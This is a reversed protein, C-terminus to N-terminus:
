RRAAIAREMRTITDARLDLATAHYAEDDIAALRQAAAEAVTGADETIEDLFGARQAADPDMLEALATARTVLRADLRHSALALPLGPLPMGIAVESFGIRYDGPAGIRLDSVLLLMAGAAVAHGEVQAVIRLRSRFMAVLLKGMGTLLGAAAAEGAALTANDLGVCFPGNAKGRLIVAHVDASAEAEAFRVALREVVEPTLANPGKGDIDLTVVGDAM